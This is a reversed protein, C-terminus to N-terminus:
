VCGRERQRERVRVCVRERERAGESERGLDDAAVEVRAHLRGLLDLLLLSGLALNIHM